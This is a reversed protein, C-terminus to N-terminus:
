KYIYMSQERLGDEIVWGSHSKKWGVQLLVWCCCPEPAACDLQIRMRTMFTWDFSIVLLCGFYITGLAVYSEHHGMIVWSSELVRHMVLVAYYCRYPDLWGHPTCLLLKWICWPYWLHPFYTHNTSIDEQVLEHQGHCTLIGCTLPFNSSHTESERLSGVLEIHSNHIRIYGFCCPEFSDGIIQPYGWKLYFFIHPWFCNAQYRM